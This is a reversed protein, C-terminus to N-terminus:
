APAQLTQLSLTFLEEPNSATGCNDGSCVRGRSGDTWRIVLRYDDIGLIRRVAVYERWARPIEIRVAPKAMFWMVLALPSQDKGFREASGAFALLAQVAAKRLELDELLVSTRWLAETAQAHWYPIVESTLVSGTETTAALVYGASTAFHQLAHGTKAAAQAWREEGTALHLEVLMQLVSVADDLRNPAAREVPLRWFLGQPTTEATVREAIHAAAATWAQNEMWRGARALWLATRAAVGTQFRPDREPKVSTLRAAADGHVYGPPALEGTFVWGDKTVFYSLLYTLTRGIAAAYAEFYPPRRAPEFQRLYVALLAAMHAQEDARRIPVPDNWAADQSGTWFAGDSTDFLSAMVSNLHLSVRTRADADGRAGVFLDFTLADLALTKPGELYGQYAYDFVSNAAWVYQSVYRPNLHGPLVYDKIVNAALVPTKYEGRLAAYLAQNLPTPQLYNNRWLISGEADLIAMSPLRSAFRAAVEPQAEAEVRVLLFKTTLLEAVRDNALTTEDLLRCAECLFASISMFVPKGLTRAQDLIRPSWAQWPLNAARKAKPSFFFGTKTVATKPKCVALLSVSLLALAVLPRM